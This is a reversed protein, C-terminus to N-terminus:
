SCDRRRFSPPCLLCAPAPSPSLVSVQVVPGVFDRLLAIRGSLDGVYARTHVNYYKAQSARRTELHAQQSLWSRTNQMAVPMLQTCQRRGFFLESPSLGLDPRRTNQLLLLARFLDNKDTTRELLRKITQVAREAAGNSQPYRPSSACHTTGCTKLFTQFKTSAFAAGNDSAFLTPLGTQLFVTRVCRLLENTTENHVPFLFPFNSFMDYFVLYRKAHFVCFDAAVHDGPGSPPSSPLLPERPRASAVRACSVCSLVFGHIDKTIRPWFLLQRAREQMLVVGPHGEHLFQLAAHQLVRPVCLRDRYLVFPGLTRLEHRLPWYAALDGHCHTPWTAQLCRHVLSLTPDTATAAAVQQYFPHVSLYLSLLRADARSLMEAEADNVVDTSAESPMRSLFDAVFNQAGPVYEWKVDYMFLEELMRRMRLSVRDMESAALGLLPKHDTQLTVPRGYTYFHCRELVFRVALLEKGIAAYRTEAPSLARAVFMVPRGHQLLVGGLGMNSADTAVTLPATSDFPALVPATLLHQRIADFAAQQESGWEFHVHKSQVRRIPEALTGFQPIYRGLFNFFGILSQLEALSRPPRISRLADLKAPDPRIGDGSIVHGLFPISNQGFSSKAENVAFGADSLRKLVTAVM